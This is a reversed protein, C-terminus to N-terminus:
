LLLTIVSNYYILFLGLWAVLNNKITKTMEPHEREVQTKM